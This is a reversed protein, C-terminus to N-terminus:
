VEALRESVLYQFVLCPVLALTPALSLLSQQCAQCIEKVGNGSLLFFHACECGLFEDGPVHYSM